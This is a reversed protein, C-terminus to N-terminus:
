KFEDCFMSLDDEDQEATHKSLTKEICSQDFRGEGAADRGMQLIFREIIKRDKEYPIYATSGYYKQLRKLKGDNCLTAYSYVPIKYDHEASQRECLM